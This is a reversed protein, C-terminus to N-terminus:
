KQGAHKEIVKEAYDLFKDTMVEWDYDRVKVAEWLSLRQRLEADAALKGIAEALKNVSKVPVLGEGWPYGDLTYKYGPNGYAVIPTGAAMAELLVLGLSEGGWSPACYIDAAKFYGPLDKDSVRGVFRVKGGLGFKSVLEWAESMQPGNGVVWLKWNINTPVAAVAKLLDLIGKRADLRGVFLLKIEESGGLDAHKAHAFEEVNVGGSIIVGDRGFVKKWVQRASTSIAVMGSLKSRLWVQVPEVILKTPFEWPDNITTAHFWGIKPTGSFNMVEINLLPILPEHILLVDFKEKRLYSDMERNTAISGFNFSSMAGNWLVPTAKGFFVAEKLDIKKEPRVSIIRAKHGRALFREHMQLVINQVGGSLSLDYPCVVGIKM